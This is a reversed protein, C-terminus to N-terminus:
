KEFGFRLDAVMGGLCYEIKYGVGLELQSHISDYFIEANPDPDEDDGTLIAHRVRGYVDGCGLCREASIGIILGIGDFRQDLFGSSNTEELHEYHNYRFGGSFELDTLCGIHFAQALEFDFNYTDVSYPNGNITADQDYSFYRVRYSLGDCGTYGLAIRWAPDFGFEDEPASEDVGDSEHYRLFLVETLATWRGGRPAGKM